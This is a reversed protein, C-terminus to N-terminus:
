TANQSARIAKLKDSYKQAVQKLNVWDHQVELKTQIWVAGKPNDRVRVLIKEEDRMLGAIVRLDKRRQRARPALDTQISFSTGNDKNHKYLVASKRLFTQRDEWRVFAIILPRKEKKPDGVRHSNKIVWSDLNNKNLGLVDVGFTKVAEWTNENKAEELGYLWLNMKRLHQEKEEEKDLM